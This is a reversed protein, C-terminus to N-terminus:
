QDHKEQFAIVRIDVTDGFRRSLGEMDMDEDLLVLDWQSDPEELLAIVEEIAYAEAVSCDQQTELQSIAPAIRGAFHSAVIVNRGTVGQLPLPCHSEPLWVAAIIGRGSPNRQLELAGGHADVMLYSIALGLGGKGKGRTSFGPEFAMGLEADSMGRGNDAILVEVGTGKSRVSIDIVGNPACARVANRILNTFVRTMQSADAYVYRKDEDSRLNISVGDENASARCIELSHALLDAVREPRLSPMGFQSGAGLQKLLERAHDLAYSVAKLAEASDRDGPKRELRRLQAQAGILLNSFDHTLVKGAENLDRIRSTALKRSEERVAETEDMVLIYYGTVEQASDSEMLPTMNFDLWRAGSGSDETKWRRGMIGSTMEKFSFHKGLLRGMVTALQCGPLSNEQLLRAAPGNNRRILGSADTIVIGYPAHLMHYEM